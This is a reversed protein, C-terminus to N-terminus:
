DVLAFWARDNMSASPKSTCWLMTYMLAVDKLTILRLSVRHLIKVLSYDNAFNYAVKM